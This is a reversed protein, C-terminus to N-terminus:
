LNTLCQNSDSEAARAEGSKQLSTTPRMSAKSLRCLLFICPGPGMSPTCAVGGGRCAVWGAGAAGATGSDGGIVCGTLRGAGLGLGLGFDLSTGLPSPFIVGPHGRAAGSGAGATGPGEERGATAPGEDRGAVVCGAGATGPGEDRGAGECGACRAWGASNVFLKASMM